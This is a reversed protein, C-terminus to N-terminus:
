GIMNIKLRAVPTVVEFLSVPSDADTVSASIQTPSSPQQGEDIPAEVEVPGSSFM